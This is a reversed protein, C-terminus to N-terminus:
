KVTIHTGDKDILNVLGHEIEVVKANGLQDGVEVNRSRDESPFYFLASWGDPSETTGILRYDSHLGRLRTYADDSTEGADIRVERGDWDCRIYSPTIELITVFEIPIGDISVMKNEPPNDFHLHAYNVGDKRVFGVFTFLRKIRKPGLDRPLTEEQESTRFALPPVVRAPRFINKEIIAAKLEAVPKTQADSLVRDIPEKNVADSQLTSDAHSTAEPSDPSADQAPTDDVTPAPQPKPTNQPGQQAAVLLSACIVTLAMLPWVRGVWSGLRLRGTM